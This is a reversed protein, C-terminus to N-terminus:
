SVKVTVEDSPTVVVRFESVPETSVRKGDQSKSLLQNRM